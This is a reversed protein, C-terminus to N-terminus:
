AERARASADSADRVCTHRGIRTNDRAKPRWRARIPRARARFHRPNSARLSKWGNVEIRTARNARGDRARAISSNRLSRIDSARTM